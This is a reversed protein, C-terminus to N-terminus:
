HDSHSVYNAVEVLNGDPDRVYVSDITGRAGIKRVPGGIIEVGGARLHTMVQPLPLESILCFDASGPTPHAAKPEFESGAVHLNIKQGGFQLATRREGFTVAQMGLARAYFDCTSGLDRVTLVLHDLTEIRLAPAAGPSAQTM